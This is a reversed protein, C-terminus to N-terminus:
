IYSCNGLLKEKSTKSLNVSSLNGLICKKYFIFHNVTDSTHVTIKKDKLLYPLSVLNNCCGFFFNFYTFDVLKGSLRFYAM